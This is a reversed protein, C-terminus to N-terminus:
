QNLKKMIALVVSEDEIGYEKKLLEKISAKLVAKPCANVKEEGKTAQPADADEVQDAYVIRIHHERAYDLAGQTVIMGKEITLVKNSENVLHSVQGLTILKKGM